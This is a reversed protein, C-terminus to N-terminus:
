QAANLGHIVSKLIYTEVCIYRVILSIIILMTSTMLSVLVWRKDPGMLITLFYYYLRVIIAIVHQVIRRESREIM